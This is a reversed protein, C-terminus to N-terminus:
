GITWYRGSKLGLDTEVQDLFAHAAKIVASERGSQAELAEVALRTKSLASLDRGPEGDLRSVQDIINAVVLSLAIRLGAIEDALKPTDDM